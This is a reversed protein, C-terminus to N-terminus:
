TAERGGFPWQQCLQEFVADSPHGGAYAQLVWAGTIGRFYEPYAAAGADDVRRMCDGETDSERIEVRGAEIAQSIAGRYLLGLADQNRGDKWLEWAVSPVDAPLSERTVEMGMVVRAPPPAAPKTRGIRRMVIAHRNIWVTWVVAGVLLTLLSVVLVTGLWEPAGFKLWDWHKSRPKKKPIKDTVTHVKFAPDSKVERIVQEATEAAHSVAPQWLMLLFMLVTAVKGLRMALRKFALEVDWGEMGTRNNIYIGFGAGTIFIDTLSISVMVCIAVTRMILAPIDEPTEPNWTEMAMRWAGDQGEPIFMMVLVLIATGYWVAALDSIFYTWMVVSEGRRTVQRCRQKYAKGRLGELDEVAITVPLWPSFRAWVFRYFFRRWWCRPIERLAEGWSPREGFLRRSIEYLVMRSGAPKWWWFLLLWLVPSDWLFYGAVVTPLLVALWWVSLCRWFDRRAMALGLDAAEWDSRPRIEATVADLRVVAGGERSCSIRRM